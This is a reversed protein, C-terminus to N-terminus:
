RLGKFGQVRVMAMETSEARMGAVFKRTLEYGEQWEPIQLKLESRERSSIRVNCAAFILDNQAHSKVEPMLDQSLNWGDKTLTKFGPESAHVTRDQLSEM